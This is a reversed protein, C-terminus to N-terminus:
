NFNESISTDVLSINNPMTSVATKPVIVKRLQLKTGLRNEEVDFKDDKM